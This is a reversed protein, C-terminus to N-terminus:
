ASEENAAPQLRRGIRIREARRRAIMADVSVAAIIAGGTAVVKWFEPISLLVFGRSITNLMIVGLVAGLVRGAGGFIAVGGIVVLAV